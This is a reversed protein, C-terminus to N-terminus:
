DVCVCLKSVPWRHLRYLLGPPSDRRRLMKCVHVLILGKRIEGYSIRKGRENRERDGKREDWGHKERKAAPWGDPTSERRAQVRAGTNICTYLCSASTTRLVTRIGLVHAVSEPPLPPLSKLSSLFCCRLRHANNVAFLSSVLM